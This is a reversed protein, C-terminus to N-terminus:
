NEYVPVACVCVCECTQMVYICAHYSGCPLSLQWYWSEAVQPSHLVFSASAHHELVCNPPRSYMCVYAQVYM